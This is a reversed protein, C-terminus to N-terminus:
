GPHVEQYGKGLKERILSEAERRALAESPFTRRKLQGATGIRGFSVVLDCGDVTVHWYKKSTGGIFEFYRTQGPLLQSVGQPTAASTTTPSPPTHPLAAPVEGPAATSEASPAQTPESAGGQPASDATPGEELWVDRDSLPEAEGLTPEAAPESTEGTLVRELRGLVAEPDDLWDKALVHAVNWGFARLLGPRLVDRELTDQECYHLDTDVFVALAFAAAGPRKVALDCRFHSHGLANEVEFGRTRLAASLEAVVVDEAVDEPREGAGAPNLSRLLFRALTLDGLSMAEAYHLYNRLSNAGDNYVNKIDAYRVSSVVAMHKKARSFAVNLRKEGGCQNIPGFNMLMRGDPGYGYCVSLVIVDREDGQINELNKVLLGAFQGDEEREYEEEVRAGFERDQAALREIAGEIEGQQAESFAVIGVTPRSPSLVLGRVLQAIYLAEAHNRRGEYVGRELRHFSVPRDLLREVGVRGDEEPATVRIEGLSSRLAQREPVTLLRGAYFAANSFSILSESRSRYHWGLMTSPLNRAAHALFSNADLEYEVPAESEEDEVLLVDDGSSRTASFFNTPPLQMQDGSVIVQDARFLAPVAEELPIQSAEDFVVADFARTDMPLTDSVSLPSMLWVPKLDLIVEGAAGALLARVSKYRMTKGFEHELERRGLNYSRKFSEEEKSLRISPVSARAVKDLFRRRNREIVLEANIELWRTHLAELRQAQRERSAGTFRALGRERHWVGNLTTAALAAELEALDLALTRLARALPAPLTAAEALCPLWDPLLRLAEFVKTREARLASFTWDNAEVFVSGALRELEALVDRLMVLGEITRRSDGAVLRERQIEPSAGILERVARRVGELEAALAALSEAGYTVRTSADLDELAQAAAYDAQLARLISLWTPRIAHQKFDYREGLVRRLEWFGPKLIRFIGDGIASAQELATALDRPELRQRWARTEERARALAAAQHERERLRQRLEQSAGSEPDILGLLSRDSLPKVTAAYRVWLAARGLTDESGLSLGFDRSVKEVHDLLQVIRRLDDEIAMRPRERAALPPALASLPHGAYVGDTRALSLARDLRALAERSEAWLRYPPLEDEIEPPLEKLKDRLQIVRVILQRLGIGGEGPVSRMAEHFRALPRAERELEEVCELRRRDCEDTATPAATLLREYTAKLDLVFDRKDAQSDHILCVLDHLGRQRLRHYVVDIAARKECVFLVRKGRAVMDAILNTITQSKGTGPPGQVIYSQGSEAAAIAKLQTPDCLVVPFRGALGATYAVPLDMSRPANSFVADFSPSSQDQELLTNYDRVLSMKRYNFNGLTLSCLDFDWSYPNGEYTGDRFAAITKEKEATRGTTPATEAMQLPQHVPRERFLDHLPAPSPRVAGIFLRLGLPQYNGRKYSYDLERFSKLGASPLPLRRRYQDLRRRARAYVMEIQPREVRNLVVGPESAHIQTALMDFFAQLTTEGLDISHPLSLSYLQKLYYRLVPNIEAERSQARMVYSDRVGKRKTLEVPLLLLPSDIREKTGEKLNNWRLFCLVLRLQSFGFEATDRRAESILKDLVSPVYPADEFRLYRTLPIPTGDVLLKEIEPQWTFLQEARISRPDFLVPVSAFTLNLSQLTPKYYLLRNRRSLEFLRERLRSIVVHRRDKAGSEHFGPIRSLDLDLGVDQERYSELSRIITALDQARRHRNLETMRLINKAVVPNLQPTLAFLNRRRSVFAELHGPDTLDLGCAVSALVLGLVYIDTLADHHGVQHEWSVYGPLYVPREITADAKAVLLNQHLEEGADAETTHVSRGVVDFVGSRGELAGLKESNTRPERAHSIEFYLRYDDVHLQGAGELPAVHGAAHTAEVQRLLPLMTALVDETTFGRRSRLFELFGLPPAPPAGM